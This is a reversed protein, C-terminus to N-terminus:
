FKVYQSVILAILSLVVIIFLIAPARTQYWKKLIFYVAVGIFVAVLAIIILTTSGFYFWIILADLGPLGNPAFSSNRSQAITTYFIAIFSDIAVLLASLIIYTLNKIPQNKNLIPQNNHFLKTLFYAIIVIAIAGGFSWFVLNNLDM